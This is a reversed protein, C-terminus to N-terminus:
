VWWPQSSKRRGALTSRLWRLFVPVSFGYHNLVTFFLMMAVAVILTWYTIHLLFLVLPFTAKADIFFLKADRASDRWHAEPPPQLVAM